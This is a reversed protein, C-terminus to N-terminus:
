PGAQSVLLTGTRTFRTTGHTGIWIVYDGAKPADIVVLPDHGRGNDDFLWIGEPGHILLFTDEDFETGVVLQGAEGRWHLLLDPRIDVLGDGRFGTLAEGELGCDRLNWVGGAKTSMSLDSLGNHGSFTLEGLFPTATWDPGPDPCALAPSTTVAVLVSVVCSSLPM